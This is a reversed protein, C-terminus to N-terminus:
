IAGLDISQMKEFENDEEEIAAVHEVKEMIDAPVLIFEDQFAHKKKGHQDLFNAVISKSGKQKLKLVQKLIKDEPPAKANENQGIKGLHQGFLNDM